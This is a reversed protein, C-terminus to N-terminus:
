KSFPKKESLEEKLFCVQLLKVLPTSIRFRGVAIYVAGPVSIYTITLFVDLIYSTM